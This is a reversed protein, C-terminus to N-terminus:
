TKYSGNITVYDHSLDCTHITARGGGLGLGVRITFERSRAIEQAKSEEEAPTPRGGKVLQVDGYWLDIRDPDVEVGSYGVACVIRGWNVDAGYLATKVLPSHAVARAAKLAGPEDPAGEVQIHVLRTAGEADQVLALALEELVEGLAAEFTEAEQSGTKLRPSGSAGNALVLVTDNTSTDGDVTIAHFSRPLCRVLSAQLLDAGVAADTVVFCLMTAMQPHIMGAGKVVGALRFRKDGILGSRVAWKPRTDTTMMARAVDPFGEPRLGSVLPGVAGRLRDMPLPVGIVGTSAMLVSEEELGLAEAVWGAATVADRYGEPGTCANACGANVLIARARGSRVRERGLLVPAAAVRNTTFVGAVAAEEQSCILGLDLAGTKKIGGSVASFWFGKVTLDAQGVETM